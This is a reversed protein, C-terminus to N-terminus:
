GGLTQKNTQQHTRAHAHTLSLIHICICIYQVLSLSVENCSKNNKVLAHQAAVLGELSDLSALLKDVPFNSAFMCRAPGFLGITERVLGKVVGHAVSAPDMWGQRVYELMSLKVQVNPLSALAQMGARWEAVRKADEAEDTGTLKLCGMHDLIVVMDQFGHQQLFAAADKLQFWNAQLDFSLGHQALLAFGEQFGPVGGTLYDGREVMPWTLAEDEKSHNLIMRVGVLADGAVAQHAALVAEAQPMESLKVFAVIKLQRERGEAAAQRLVARTEDVPDLGAPPSTAQGVVTEIHVYGAVGVGADREYDLLSYVPLREGLEGLTPNPHAHVNWVHFHPDIIPLPVTSM